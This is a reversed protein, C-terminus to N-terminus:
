ACDGKSPSSSRPKDLTGASTRLCFFFSTSSNSSRCSASMSAARSFSSRSPTAAHYHFPSLTNTPHPFHNFTGHVTYLIQQMDNQFKCQIHHPNFQAAPFHEPLAPFYTGTQAHPHSEAVRQWPWSGAQLTSTNTRTPARLYDCM